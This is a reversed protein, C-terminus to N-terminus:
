IDTEFLDSRPKSRQTSVVVVFVLGLWLDSGFFSGRIIVVVFLFMVSCTPCSQHKRQCNMRMVSPTIKAKM